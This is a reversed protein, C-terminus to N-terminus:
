AATAWPHRQFDAAALRRTPSYAMLAAILARAPASLQAWKESEFSVELGECDGDAVAAGAASASTSADGDLGPNASSASAARAAPDVFRPRCPEATLAAYLTAGLSYSDVPFGYAAAEARGGVGGFRLIEPAVYGNTGVFSRGESGASLIKSLGFDLLKAYVEGNPSDVIMINEPKLDRHVIGQEHLYAVAAAVQVFVRRARPESLPGDELLEECLERGPVLDMVLRWEDEGRYVAHLKVINPHEIRRMAEVERWIGIPELGALRWRRVDVTKVAVDADTRGGFSGGRARARHVKGSAGRGIEEGLLYDAAFADFPRTLTRGLHPSSPSRAHGCSETPGLVRSTRELTPNANASDEASDEDSSDPPEEVVCSPKVTAPVVVAQGQVRTTRELVPPSADPEEDVVEEITPM